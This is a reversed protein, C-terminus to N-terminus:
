PVLYSASVRQGDFAPSGYRAGYELLYALYRADCEQGTDQNIRDIVPQVVEAVIRKHAKSPNAHEDALIRIAKTLEDVNFIDGIKFKKDPVTEAEEAM